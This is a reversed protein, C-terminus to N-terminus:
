GFNREAEEVSTGLVQLVVGRARLQGVFEQETLGKELLILELLWRPAAFTVAEASM